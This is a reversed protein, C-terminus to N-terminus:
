LDVEAVRAMVENHPILSGLPARKVMLTVADLEARTVSYFDLWSQESVATWPHEMLAPLKHIWDDDQVVPGPPIRTVIERYIPDMMIMPNSLVKGRVKAATLADTEHTADVCLKGLRGTLPAFVHRVTGDRWMYEACETLRHSCFVIHRNDMRKLKAVFGHLAAERVYRDTEIQYDPHIAIGQNDGKCIIAFPPYGFAQKGFQKGLMYRWWHINRMPEGTHWVSHTLCSISCLSCEETTEKFTTQAGTVLAGEREFSVGHSTKGKNIKHALKLNRRVWRPGPQFFQTCIDLVARRSHADNRSFDVEIMQYGADIYWEFWEAVDEMAVEPGAAFFVPSYKNFAQLECAVAAQTFKGSYHSGPTCAEIMRPDFDGETDWKFLCERKMFCKHSTLQRDAPAVGESLFEVYGRRTFPQMHAIFASQTFPLFNVWEVQSSLWRAWLEFRSDYHKGVILQPRLLRTQVSRLENELTSAPVVPFTDAFSIGYHGVGARTNGMSSTEVKLTANEEVKAKSPVCQITNLVTPLAVIAGVQVWLGANYMQVFTNLHVGFHAGILDLLFHTAMVTFMGGGQRLYWTSGLHYTFTAFGHAPGRAFAAFTDLGPVWMGADFRKFGDEVLIAAITMTVMEAFLGPYHCPHNYDYPSVYEVFNCAGLYAAFPLEAVVSSTTRTIKTWWKMRPTLTYAVTGLVGLSALVLFPQIMDRLAALDVVSFSRKVNNNFMIRWSKAVKAAKDLYTPGYEQWLIFLWTDLVMAKGTETLSSYKTDLALQRKVTAIGVEGYEKGMILTQISAALPKTIGAVGGTTEALLESETAWIRGVGPYHNEVEGQTVPALMAQRLTLPPQLRDVKPGFLVRYVYTCGIVRKLVPTVQYAGVYSCSLDLWHMPDHVYCPSNGAVKTEVQDIARHSYKAEDDKTAFSGYARPFKHVTMWWEEVVPNNSFYNEIELLPIYVHHFVKIKHQTQTADLETRTNFQADQLRDGDAGTYMARAHVAYPDHARMERASSSVVLRPKGALQGAVFAIALQSETRLQKHLLNTTDFEVKAGEAKALNEAPTGREATVVPPTKTLRENSVDVHKEDLQDGSTDSENASSNEDESNLKLHWGAENLVDEPNTVRDYVGYQPYVVLDAYSVDLIGNTIVGEEATVQFMAAIVNKCDKDLKTLEVAILARRASEEAEDDAKYRALFEEKSIVEVATRPTLELRAAEACLDDIEQQPRKEEHLKDRLPKYTAGKGLRLFRRRDSSSKGRRTPM